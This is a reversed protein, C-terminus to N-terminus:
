WISNVVEGGSRAESLAYMELIQLKVVCVADWKTIWLKGPAWLCDLVEDLPQFVGFAGCIDELTYLLMYPANSKRALHKRTVSYATSSTFVSTVIVAPSYTNLGFNFVSQAYLYVRCSM